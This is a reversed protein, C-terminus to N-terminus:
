LFAVGELRRSRRGLRRMFEEIGHHCYRFYSVFYVVGYPDTDGFRVTMPAEVRPSVHETTEDSMASGGGSDEKRLFLM